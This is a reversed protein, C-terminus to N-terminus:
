ILKGPKDHILADLRYVVPPTCNTRNNYIRGDREYSDVNTSVKEVLKNFDEIEFDDEDYYSFFIQKITEEKGLVISTFKDISYCFSRECLNNFPKILKAVFSIMIAPIYYYGLYIRALKRVLENKVESFDNHKYAYSITSRSICLVKDSCITVGLYSPDYKDAVYVLPPKVIELEKILNNYIDLVEKYKTDELRPNESSVEGIYTISAKSLMILLVVIILFIAPGGITICLKIARSRAGLFSMIRNVIEGDNSAFILAYTLLGYITLTIIIAIAIILNEKPHRAEKIVKHIRRKQRAM